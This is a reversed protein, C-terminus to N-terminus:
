NVFEAFTMNETLPFATKGQRHLLSSEGVYEKGIRGYELLFARPAPSNDFGAKVWEGHKNL